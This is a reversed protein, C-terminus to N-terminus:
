ALLGTLWPTWRAKLDDAQAPTGGYLSLHAYLFDKGGMSEMGIALIIDRLAGLSELRLHLARPAKAGLVTGALREGLATTVDFAAGPELPLTGTKTLGAPGILKSWAADLAGIPGMVVVTQRDKGDHDEIAIRLTKFYSAWGSNTGDYYADWAPGEPINGHVMRLVTKGDRTELHYEEVIPSDPEPTTCPGEAGEPPPRHVLKLHRPADFVAIEGEGDMGEGWSVKYTGGVRPDIEAAEVYWRTVESADTLARWVREIPADIEVVHEQTRTKSETMM